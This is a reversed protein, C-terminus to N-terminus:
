AVGSLIMGLAEVTIQNPSYTGVIKGERLVSITDCFSMMEKINPSFVVTTLNRERREIIKQFLLSAGMPDLGVTPHLAFLIKAERGLTRAIYVRQMNGGSLNTVPSRLDKAVISFEEMLDKALKTRLKSDIAFGRFKTYKEFLGVTLNEYVSAETLLGDKIRDDSLLAVGKERMLSVSPNKIKEGFLFLQGKEIKRLGFISEVLEKEGTGPFVAVGHVEGSLIRMNLDKIVLHGRDDKVHLGEVALAEAETTLKRQSAFEYKVETDFMSKVLKSVELGASQYRASVRGGVMVLIEDAVDIVEPLDHSVLIVTYQQTVLKKLIKKLAHKQSLPLFATAEDLILIPKLGREMLIQSQLLAKAIEFARLHGIPLDEVRADLDIQVGLERLIQQARTKFGKVPILGPLLMSLHQSPSLFPALNPHQEVKVVGCTNIAQHYDLVPLGNVWVEGSDPILYGAVINMITSKGAGNPGVIGFIRFPQLELSINDVAKVGGVFTKSVNVLRVAPDM